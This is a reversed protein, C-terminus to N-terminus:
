RNSQLLPFRYVDKGIKLCLEAAWLEEDRLRKGLKKELKEIEESTFSAFLETVTSEQNISATGSISEAKEPDAVESLSPSLPSATAQSVAVSTPLAVWAISTHFRPSTYYPELREKLLIADIKDTLLKM